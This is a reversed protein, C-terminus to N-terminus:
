KGARKNRYEQLLRKSFQEEAKRLKLIKSAPIVGKLSAAFAKRSQYLELEANEMQTLLGAAEKETLKDTDIRDLYNKLREQRLDRQKEEFSNYLPWFKASEDPTLNLESTIFAIKMAKINDKKEQIRQKIRSGPQAFSNASVLLLLTFIQLAKRM